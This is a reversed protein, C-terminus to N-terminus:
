LLPHYVSFRQEPDYQKKLVLLRQVDEEEFASRVEAVSPHGGMMFNLSEGLYTAAFAEKFSNHERYMEDYSAAPEEVDSIRTLLRLIYESDRHGVCSQENPMSMQGGVHNIQLVKSNDSVEFLYHNLFEIQAESMDALHHGTAFYGNARAPDNYIVGSDVFPIEAITDKLPEQHVVLDAILEAISEEGSSGIHGIRIHAVKKGRFEASVASVNPFPIIGISSTTRKTLNQTWQRWVTLVDKFDEIDFYLGGGYLHEVPYLRVTIETVVLFGHGYGRLAWMLDPNNQDNVSIKEGQANVGTVEVLHDSSYGFFRGLIGIGGELTYGTAGVGPFSGSVPYLNYRATEQIVQGWQAGSQITATQNTANVRVANYASMDIRIYPKDIDPLGHGTNTVLVPLSRKNAEELAIQVDNETAISFSDTPSLPYATQYINGM